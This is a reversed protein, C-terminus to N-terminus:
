DVTLFTKILFINKVSHFLAVLFLNFNNKLKKYDYTQKTIILKSEEFVWFFKYISKYFFFSKLNKKVRIPKNIELLLCSLFVHMWIYFTFETNFLTTKLVGQKKEYVTSFREILNRSLWLLLFTSFFFRLILNLIYIIFM